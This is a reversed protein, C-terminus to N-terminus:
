AASGESAKEGDAEAALGKVDSHDLLHPDLQDIEATLEPTLPHSILASKLLAYGVAAVDGDAVGSKILNAATKADVELPSDCKYAIGDIVADVLLRIKMLENSM